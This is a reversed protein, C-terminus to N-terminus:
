DEDQERLADADHGVEEVDEHEALADMKEHLETGTFFGKDILLQLLTELAHATGYVTEELAEFRAPDFEQREHEEM